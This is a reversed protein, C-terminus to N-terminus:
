FLPATTRTNGTTQSPLLAGEAALLHLLLLLELLLFFYGWVLLNLLVFSALALAMMRLTGAFSRCAHARMAVVFVAILTVLQVLALHQPGVLAATFFSLNVPRATLGILGWHSLTGFLFAHPGALLFPLVLVAAALLSLALCEAAARAGYVEFLFLLLFPLVIWSFQSMAVSVGFLLAALRLRGANALLLAAALALWHPPSYLEHRYLLYPGLLFTALLALARLRREPRTAALVVPILLLFSVLSTLRLDFHLLSPPLYALLTGPLYTLLVSESPFTYLRYPDHHQLLTHNAAALLPLMDSRGVALPFSRVSLLAVATVIAALTLALRTTETPRRDPLAYSVLAVLSLLFVPAALAPRFSYGFRAYVHAEAIFLPIALALFAAALLLPARWGLLAHTVRPPLRQALTAPFLTFGLLALCVFTFPFLRLQFALTAPDAGLHFGDGQVNLFLLLLAFALTRAAAPPQTSLPASSAPRLGHQPAARNRM